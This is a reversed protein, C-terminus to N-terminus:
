QAVRSAAPIGNSSARRAAAILDALEATGYTQWWTDSLATPAAAPDPANVWAQAVPPPPAPPEQAGGLTGCGALILSLVAAAAPSAIKTRM